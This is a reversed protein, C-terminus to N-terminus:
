FKFFFRVDDFLDCSRFPIGREQVFSSFYICDLLRIVFENNVYNRQSLFSAQFSFTRLKYLFNM